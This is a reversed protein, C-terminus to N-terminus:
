DWGLAEVFSTYVLFSTNLDPFEDQGFSRGTRPHVITSWHDWDTMQRVWREMYDRYAALPLYHPMWLHTRVTTNLFTAGTWSNAKPDFHPSAASYSPFPYELWYESPNHLYRRWIRDFLESSLVHEQCLPLLQMERYKRLQGATDRDYFFEDEPDFCHRYILEKLQEARERWELAEAPRGLAEAMEGLAVRAGYTVASLDPALLPWGNQVLANGADDGPCARSTFGYVRASFDLGMDFECFMEVLGTGRTNRNRTIWGDFRAAGDYARALFAENGLKKALMWSTRAFPVNQQIQGFHNKHPLFSTSGDSLVSPMLGDPRQTALYLDHTNLAVEPDHRAYLYAELLTNEAWLVPGSYDMKGSILVPRGVLQPMVHVLGRLRLLAEQYRVHM